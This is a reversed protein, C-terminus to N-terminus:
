LRTHLAISNLKDVVTEVGQLDIEMPNKRCESVFVQWEGPSMGREGLNTM